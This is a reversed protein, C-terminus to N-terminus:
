LLYGTQGMLVYVPPPRGGGELLGEGGRSGVIAPAAEQVGDRLRQPRKRRVHDNEVTFRDAWELLAKGVEISKEAPAGPRSVRGPPRRQLWGYPAFRTSLLV